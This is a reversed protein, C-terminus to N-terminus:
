KLRCVPIISPSNKHFPNKKDAGFLERIEFGADEYEELNDAM